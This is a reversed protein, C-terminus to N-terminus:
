NGLVIKKMQPKERYSLSKCSCKKSIHSPCINLILCKELWFVVNIDRKQDTELTGNYILSQGSQMFPKM